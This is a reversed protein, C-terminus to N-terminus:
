RYVITSTVTAIVYFDYDCKTTHNIEGTVSNYLDVCNTDFRRVWGLNERCGPQYSAETTTILPKDTTIPATTTTTTTTPEAAM